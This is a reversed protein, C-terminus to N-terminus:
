RFVLCPHTVSSVNGTTGCQSQRGHSGLHGDEHGGHLAPRAGHGQVCNWSAFHEVWSCFLLVTAAHGCLTSSPCTWSFRHASYANFNDALMAAPVTAQSQVLLLTNLRQIEAMASQPDWPVVHPGQVGGSFNGQHHPARQQGYPGWVARKANKAKKTTKASPVAPPTVAGSFASAGATRMMYPHQAKLYPFLTEITQVDVTPQLAYYTSVSSAVVPFAQVTALFAEFYENPQKGQGALTMKKAALLFKDM